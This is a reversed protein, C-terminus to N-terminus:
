AGRSVSELSAAGSAGHFGSGSWGRQGRPPRTRSRTRFCRRVPQRQHTSRHPPLPRHISRRLSQGQLRLCIRRRHPHPRRRRPHPRRRRPHSRLIWRLIPRGRRHRHRLRPCRHFDLRRQPRPRGRRRHSPSGSSRRLCSTRTRSRRRICRRRSTHSSERRGGKCRWREGSPNRSRRFPRSTSLRRGALDAPRSRGPASRACPIRDTAPTKSGLM